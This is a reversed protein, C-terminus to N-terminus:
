RTQGQEPCIAQSIASIRGEEDEVWGMVGLREAKAGEPYAMARAEFLQTREKKSLTIGADLTRKFTNRVVFREVPTGDTGAPIREVLILWVTWIGRKPLPQLTLTTNAYGPLGPELTIRLPNLPTTFRKDVTKPVMHLWPHGLKAQPQGLGDILDLRVLADRTAAASLPAEDGSAAPVIWDLVLTDAPVAV